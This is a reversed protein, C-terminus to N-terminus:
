SARSRKALIRAGARFTMMRSPASSAGQSLDKEVGSALVWTSQVKKTQVGRSHSPRLLTGALRRFVKWPGTGGGVRATFTGLGPVGPMSQDWILTGASMVM